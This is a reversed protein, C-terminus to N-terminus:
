DLDEASKIIKDDFNERIKVLSKPACGTEVIERQKDVEARVHHLEVAFHDQGSTRCLPSM